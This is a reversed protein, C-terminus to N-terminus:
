GETPSVLGRIPSFSLPATGSVCDLSPFYVHNFAGLYSPWGISTPGNACHRTEYTPPLLSILSVVSITSLFSSTPGSANNEVSPRMPARPMFHRTLALIASFHTM